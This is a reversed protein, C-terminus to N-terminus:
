FTPQEVFIVEFGKCNDSDRRLRSTIPHDNCLSLPDPKQEYKAGELAVAVIVMREVEIM